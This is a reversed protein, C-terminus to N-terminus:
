QNKATRGAALSRKIMRMEVLTSFIASMRVKAFGATRPFHRVGVEKVPFGLARAKVLIEGDVFYKKSEMKIEDFIERRFLKFACDIDRVRLDFVLRVLRNFGWAFIKRIRKDKRDIRWGIVLKHADIHPLLLSIESVDFQNDSDTYFVLPMRAAAFGDRLSAGYGLNPRHHIVRLDNGAREMAELMEGTGDVSGDDVVIIEYERGCEHLAKRASEVAREINEAENYAPMM